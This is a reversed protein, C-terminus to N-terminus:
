LTSWSVLKLVAGEPVVGQTAFRWLAILLRRAMAVVLIVALHQELRRRGQPVTIGREVLVARLRNMLATREGVPRDRVRYLSRMDLQEASKLAVFRMTLRTAAEAIAEADRDLREALRVSAINEPEIRAEIRHADLQDFCYTLFAADGTAHDGQRWWPM